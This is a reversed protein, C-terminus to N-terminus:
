NQHWCNHTLVTGIVGAPPLIIPASSFLIPVGLPSFHLRESSLQSAMKSSVATSEIRGSESYPAVERPPLAPVLLCPGHNYLVVASKNTATGPISFFPTEKQM